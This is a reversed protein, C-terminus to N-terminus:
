TGTASPRRSSSASTRPSTRSRRASCCPRSSRPAATSRLQWVENETAFGGLKITATGTSANPSIQVTGLTDPSIRLDAFFATTASHIVIGGRLFEATFGKNATNIKEILRNAVTTLTDNPGTLVAFPEVTADLENSNPTLRQLYITWTEGDGVAGGLVIRAQKTATRVQIEDNQGGNTDANFAQRSDYTRTRTPEVEIVVEETGTLPKTLVMGYSDAVTAANSPYSIEFRTTADIADCPAAAPCATMTWPSDLTFIRSEADYDKITRQQGRGRGDVITILADKLLVANPNTAKRQLSILLEYNMGPQLSNRFEDPRNVAVGQYRTAKAWTRKTTVEVTYTIAKNLSCELFPDGATKSGPDLGNRTECTVQKHQEDYVTLYPRDEYDLLDPQLLQARLAAPLLNALAQLAPPIIAVTESGRVVSANDIDFIAM